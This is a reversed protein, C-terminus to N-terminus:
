RAAPESPRAVTQIVSRGTMGDPQKITLLSRDLTQIGQKAAAIVGTHGVIDANAFNIVGFAPADRLRRMVLRWM